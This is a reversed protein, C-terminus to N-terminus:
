YVNIFNYGVTILLRILFYIILFTRAKENTVRTSAILIVLLLIGDTFYSLIPIWDFIYELRNSLINVIFWLITTILITGLVFLLTNITVQDESKTITSRKITIHDENNTITSRQNAGRLVSERNISSLLSGCSKCYQAKSDNFYNCNSCRM